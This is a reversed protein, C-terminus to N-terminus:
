INSDILFSQLLGVGVNKGFYTDKSGKILVCQTLLVSRKYFLLQYMIPMTLASMHTGFHTQCCNLTRYVFPLMWSLTKFSRMDSVVVHDHRTNVPLETIGTINLLCCIQNVNDGTRM